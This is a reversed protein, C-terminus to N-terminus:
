CTEGLSEREFPRMMMWDTRQVQDGSNNTYEYTLEKYVVPKAFVTEVISKGDKKAQAIEEAIRRSVKALVANSDGNCLDVKQISTPKGDRDRFMVPTGKFTAPSFFCKEVQKQTKFQKHSLEATGFNPKNDAM